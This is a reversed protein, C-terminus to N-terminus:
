VLEERKKYWKITNRLGEDLSTTKFDSFCWNNTGLLRKVDGRRKPLFNFHLKKEFLDECRDRMFTILDRIPIERESCIIYVDEPKSLGMIRCIVNVCDSVYTFDRTQLGDGYIEVPEEHLISQIAKPIIAQFEKPTQRYGYLNFPRIITADIGYHRKYTGILTDAAVKGAAYTTQPKFGTESNIPYEEANGYVESTSFHILRKAFKNRMIQCLVTAIKVEQEFVWEPYVLSRPLGATAVNIIIDINNEVCVQAVKNFKTADGYFFRNNLDKVGKLNELAGSLLNDLIFIENSQSLKDALHSGLFGAGGILLYRLIM